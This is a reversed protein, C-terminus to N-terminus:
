NLSKIKISIHPNEPSVFFTDSFGDITKWDDQPIVGSMQLGDLIFKKAFSINDKDKRTNKCHWEFEIFFPAKLGHNRKMKSHWAVAETAEKKMKAAVFRNSREANIYTNLDPLEGPIIILLSNMSPM